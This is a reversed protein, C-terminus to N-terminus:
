VEERGKLIQRTLADIRSRLERTECWLEYNRQQLTDNQVIWVYIGACLVGTLAWELWTM